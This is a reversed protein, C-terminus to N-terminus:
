ARLAVPKALTGPKQWNAMSPVCVSASGTAGLCLFVLKKERVWRLKARFKGTFEGGWRAKARIEAASNVHSIRLFDFFVPWSFVTKKV